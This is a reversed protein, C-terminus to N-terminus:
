SLRLVLSSLRRRGSMTLYEYWSRPV